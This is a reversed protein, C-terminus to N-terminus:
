MERGASTLLALTELIDNHIQQMAGLDVAICATALREEMDLTVEAKGYARYHQHLQDLDKIIIEYYKVAREDFSCLSSEVALPLSALLTEKHALILSRLQDTMVGRPANVRLQEGERSVQIENQALFQQLEMFTM